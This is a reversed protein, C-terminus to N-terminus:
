LFPLSWCKNRGSQVPIACPVPLLGQLPSGGEEDNLWMFSAVMNVSKFILHFSFKAVTPKLIKRAPCSSPSIVRLPSSLSSAIIWFTHLLLM